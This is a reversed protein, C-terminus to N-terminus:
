AKAVARVAGDLAPRLAEQEGPETGTEPEPKKRGISRWEADTMEEIPKVGADIGLKSDAIAEPVHQIGRVLRFLAGNTLKVSVTKPVFFEM